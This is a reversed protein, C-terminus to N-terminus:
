KRLNALSNIELETCATIVRSAKKIKCYAKEQCRYKLKQTFTSTSIPFSFVARKWDTGDITVCGLVGSKSKITPVKTFSSRWWALAQELYKLQICYDDLLPCRRGNKKGKEKFLFLKAHDKLKCFRLWRSRRQTPLDAEGPLVKFDTFYMPLKPQCVQCVRRFLLITQHCSVLPRNVSNCFVSDTIFFQTM